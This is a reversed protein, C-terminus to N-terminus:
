PQPDNDEPEPSASLISRYPYYDENANFTKLTEYSFCFMMALAAAASLLIHKKDRSLWVRGMCEATGFLFFPLLYWTLRLFAVGFPVAGPALLIMACTLSEFPFPERLTYRYYGIVIAPLASILFIHYIFYNHNLGINENYTFTYIMIKGGYTAGFLTAVQDVCAYMLAVVLASALFYIIFKRDLNVRAIMVLPVFALVVASMHFMCAVVVSGYYYIWKRARLWDYSLLFVGIAMGQRLIEINITMAMCALYLLVATFRAKVHKRVFYFVAFNMFAAVALQFGWYPVHLTKCIVIFWGFAPAFSPYNSDAGAAIEQWTPYSAYAGTYLHITDYGIMDRLGFLLSIYAFLVWFMIERCRRVRETDYLVICLVSLLLPIIYPM